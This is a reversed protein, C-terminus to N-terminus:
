LWSNSLAFHTVIRAVNKVLGQHTACAVVREREELSECKGTKKTSVNRDVGLQKM